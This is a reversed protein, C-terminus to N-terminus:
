ESPVLILYALGAGVDEEEGGEVSNAQWSAVLIDDLGDGNVDGASSVTYGAEDERAEGVFRMDSDGLDVVGTTVSEGLVLYARGVRDGANRAGVLIDGRGDGDVDGAPAISRGAHDSWGQGEFIVDAVDAAQVAPGMSSGFILYVRGRHSDSTHAGYMVDGLGDGDM